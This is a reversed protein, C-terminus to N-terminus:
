NAAVFIHGSYFDALYLSSATAAVGIAYGQMPLDTTTGAGDYVHSGWLVHGNAVALKGETGQKQALMTVTGGGRPVSYLRQMQCDGTMCGTFYVSAADVVLWGTGIWGSALTQAPHGPEIRRILGRNMESYFLVGDRAALDWPNDVDDIVLEPTGGTTAVRLIRGEPSVAESYYVWGGDVSVSTPNFATALVVPTGGTVPVKLIEGAYQPGTHALYVFGGSVDLAYVRESTSVLTEIAGGGLPMRRVNAQHDFQGNDVWYLHTADVGM